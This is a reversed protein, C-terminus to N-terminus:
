KLPAIFAGLSQICHGNGDENQLVGLTNQSYVRSQSRTNADISVSGEYSGASSCAFSHTSHWSRRENDQSIPNRSVLKIPADLPIFGALINIGSQCSQPASVLTFLSTENAEIVLTLSGVRTFPSATTRADGKNLRRRITKRLETIM